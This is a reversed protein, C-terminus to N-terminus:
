EGLQRQITQYRKVLTDKELKLKYAAENVGSLASDREVTQQMSTLDLKGAQQRDHEQQINAAQQQLQTFSGDIERVRGIISKREALLDRRKAELEMEAKSKLKNKPTENTQQPAAAEKVNVVREDSALPNPLEMTRALLVLCAASTMTMCVLPYLLPNRAPKDVPRQETRPRPGSPTPRCNRTPESPVVLAAGCRPCESATGLLDETASIRQSCQPCEFVTNM